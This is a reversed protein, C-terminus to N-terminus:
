RSFCSMLTKTYLTHSKIGYKSFSRAYVTIRATYMSANIYLIQAHRTLRCYAYAYPTSRLSVPYDFYIGHLAVIAEEREKHVEGRCESRSLWTGCCAMLVLASSVRHLIFVRDTLM